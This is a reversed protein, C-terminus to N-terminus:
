LGAGRAFADDAISGANDLEAELDAIQGAQEDIEGELQDVRSRLRVVERDMTGLVADVVRELLAPTLPIPGVLGSRTLEYSVASRMVERDGHAVIPCLHGLRRIREELTLHEGDDARPIGTADLAHACAQHEEVYPGEIGAILDELPAVLHQLATRIITPAMDPGIRATAGFGCLGITQEASAIMAATIQELFDSITM